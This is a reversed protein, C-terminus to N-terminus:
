SVTEFWPDDDLVREATRVVDGSPTIRSREHKWDTARIESIEGTKKHHASGIIERRRLLDILQIYRDRLAAAAIM